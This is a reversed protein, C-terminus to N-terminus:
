QATSSTGNKKWLSQVSFATKPVIVPKESVKDPQTAQANQSSAAHKLLESSENKAPTAKTSSFYKILYSSLCYLCNDIALQTFVTKYDFNNQQHIHQAYQLGASTASTSVIGAFFANKKTTGFKKEALQATGIGVLTALGTIKPNYAAKTVYKTVYPKESDGPTSVSKKRFSQDVQTLLDKQGRGSHVLPPPTSKTSSDAPCSTSSSTLGNYPIPEKQRQQQALYAVADHGIQEEQGNETSVVFFSLKTPRYLVGHDADIMLHQGDVLVARAGEQENESFTFNSPPM